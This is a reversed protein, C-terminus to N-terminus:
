FGPGVSSIGLGSCDSEQVGIVLSAIRAGNDVARALAEGRLLSSVAASFFADGAGTSDVAAVPYIGQFGSRGQSYIYVAGKEGLTVVFNRLKQERAFAIAEPLMKEPVDINKQMLAGAEVENCIFCEMYRFFGYNKGIISLNGPLAYIKVSRAAAEAFVARAIKESLDVEFAVGKVEPLVAPLAPIIAREMVSVDPMHSVSGLLEGDHGIIALWAGIGGATVTALHDLRIGYGRLKNKLSLCEGDENLTSVLWTDVGLCRMNVAVNRAVGGPTVAVRGLNRGDPQYGARAFGKYDVFITGIVAIGTQM